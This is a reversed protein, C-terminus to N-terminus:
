IKTCSMFLERTAIFKKEVFSLWFGIKVTFLIIKKKKLASENLDFNSSM